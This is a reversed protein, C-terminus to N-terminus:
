RSEEMAKKVFRRFETGDGIYDYGVRDTFKVRMEWVGQNELWDLIETDARAAALETELKRMFALKEMYSTNHSDFADTRPTDSM